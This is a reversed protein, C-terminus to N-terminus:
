EIDSGPCNLADKYFTGDPKRIQLDYEVIPEYNDFPKAWDFRFRTGVISTTIISMVDPVDSAEIVAVDSWEGYGYINQARVMFSYFTGGTLGSVSYQTSM